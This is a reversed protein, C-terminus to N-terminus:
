KINKAIERKVHDIRTEITEGLGKVAMICIIGILSTLILYEMVGQGKQNKLKNKMSVETPAGILLSLALIVASKGHNTRKNCFVM